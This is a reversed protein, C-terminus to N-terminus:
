RIDPKVQSLVDSVYRFAHAVSGLSPIGKNHYCIVKEPFQATFYEELDNRWGPNYTISGGFFVVNLTDKELLASRLFQHGNYLHFRSSLLRENLLNGKKDQFLNEGKVSSTNYGLLINIFSM